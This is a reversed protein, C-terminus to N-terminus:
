VAGTFDRTAGELRRDLVARITRARNFAGKKADPHGLQQERLTWYALEARLEELTLRELSAPWDKLKKFRTM